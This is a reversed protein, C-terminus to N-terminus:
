LNLPSLTETEGFIEHEAALIDYKKETAYQRIMSFIYEYSITIRRACERILDEDAALEWEEYLPFLEMFEKRRVQRDFTLSCIPSMYRPESIFVKGREGHVMFWRNWRIPLEVERGDVAAVITEWTAQADAQIQKYEPRDERLFGNIRDRREWYAAKFNWHQIYRRVDEEDVVYRMAQDSHLMVAPMTELGLELGRIIRNWGDLIRWEDPDYEVAVVPETVDDDEVEDWPVVYESAERAYDALRIQGIVFQEPKEEIDILIAPLHFRVVGEGRWQDGPELPALGYSGHCYGKERYRYKVDCM